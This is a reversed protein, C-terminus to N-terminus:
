RLGSVLFLDSYSQLRSYVYAQLNRSVHMRAAQIESSDAPQIRRFPKLQGTRTDLLDLVLAKRDMSRSLIQNADIFVVPYVTRGTPIVRTQGTNLDLVTVACKDSVGAAFRGAPDIVADDLQLSSSVLVPDGRPLQQRYIGPRGGPFNGASLIQQGDPFFKIWRYRFGQGAVPTSTRNDISILALKSPDMADQTLAWHGDASLDMARGSGLREPTQSGHKYLFASYGPGGGTGSEDFLISSGDASIAAAQSWDLWSIDQESDAGLKGTAMLIRQNGRSMLVKGSRAIDRLQLDGSNQMVQRTRGDLSVAILARNIGERAAAFWIENSSPHWALGDLSAWGASLVHSSGTQSDVVVIQGADDRPIPHEAFAIWAGDPSVRVNDIWSSSQYIKHGAPYEVTYIAGAASLLCLRGNPGWDAHRAHDSIRRGVGGNIPVTELVPADESKPRTFVAVESPGPIAELWANGVNLERPQHRDKDGADASFLRSPAGNWEASYLIHEGDSTFRANSVLGKRFTIQEFATQARPVSVSLAAVVAALSIGIIAAWGSHGLRSQRTGALGAPASGGVAELPQEIHLVTPALDTNPQEAVPVPADAIIQIPALFRYGLRSLTEIYMPSDASDGLAIRLRNVATNLGSEFDVFVDSPWLKSRLEDRTVLHGPNELLAALIQFPKHQLRVRVGHKRLEGTEMSLEFSGFRVISHSPQTRANAAAQPM